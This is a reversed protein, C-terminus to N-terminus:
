AFTMSKKDIVISIDGDLFTNDDLDIRLQSSIVGNADKFFNCVKYNRM